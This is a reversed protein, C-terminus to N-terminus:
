FPTPAPVADNGTGTGCNEFCQPFV